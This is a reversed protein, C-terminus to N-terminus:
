GYKVPPLRYKWIDWLVGSVEVRKVNWQRINCGPYCLLVLRVWSEWREIIKLVKFGRALLLLAVLFVVVFLLLMMCSQPSRVRLYSFWLIQISNIDIILRFLWLISQLRLVWPFVGDLRILWHWLERYLTQSSIIDNLFRFIFLLRVSLFSVQVPFLWVIYDILCLSM